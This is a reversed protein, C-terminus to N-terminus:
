LMYNEVGVAIWADCMEPHQKLLQEATNRASKMERFSAVYQQEILALYDSNLGAALVAAIMSNPDNPSQAALKRAAAISAQFNKKVLPDPTLKHDTLFHQDHTFFESQLIHLRDFESFLYVAADSVPGMPDDPREHNWTQFTQHADAFQLNYLHRFGQELLTEASARSCLCLCVTASLLIPVFLGQSVKASYM